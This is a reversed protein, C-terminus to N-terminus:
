SKNKRSINIFRLRRESYKLADNTSLATAILSYFFLFCFIALFWENLSLSADKYKYFSTFIFALISYVLAVFLSVVTITFTNIIKDYVKLEQLFSVFDDDSSSIIFALAAFFISFTISLVGIGMEFISISLDFSVYDPMAYFSVGSAIFAILTDFSLIYKKFYKV